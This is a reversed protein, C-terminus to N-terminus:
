AAEDGRVVKFREKASARTAPRAVPAAAAVDSIRVRAARMSPITLLLSDMMQRVLTGLAVSAGPEEAESLRRCLLAVELAQNNREWLVSQPRGWLERWLQLERSSAQTLPWDPVEAAQGDGSITEWEGGSGHRRTASPDAPPGSRTRAGGKPMGM